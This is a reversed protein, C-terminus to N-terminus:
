DRQEAEAVEGRALAYERGVEDMRAELEDERGNKITPGEFDRGM